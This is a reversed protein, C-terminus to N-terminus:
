DPYSCRLWKSKKDSLNQYRVSCSKLFKYGYIRYIGSQFSEIVTTLSIDFRFYKQKFPHETKNPHLVVTEPLSHLLFTIGHFYNLINPIILAVPLRAVVLLLSTM